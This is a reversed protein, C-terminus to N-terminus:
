PRRERVAVTVRSLACSRGQEDTLDVDWVWTTAGRHRRRAEARVTGERVPRLFSTHNSLGMAIRDDEWVFRNTAESAILEALAAYVGGHVIGWRQRTRDAIEVHGRAVEPTLEDVVLGLAADLTRDAPVLYDEPTPGATM